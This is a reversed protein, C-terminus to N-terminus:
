THMGEKGCVSLCIFGARGCDAGDDSISITGLSQQRWPAVCVCVCVCVRAPPLPPLPAHMEEKDKRREGKM